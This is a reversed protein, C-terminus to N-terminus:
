QEQCQTCKATQSHANDNASDATRTTFVSQPASHTTYTGATNAVTTSATITTTALTNMWTNQTTIPPPFNGNAIAKGLNIAERIDQQPTRESERQNQATAIWNQEASTTLAAAGADEGQVLTISMDLHQLLADDEDLPTSSHRRQTRQERETAIRRTTLENHTREDFPLTQVLATLKNNRRNFATAEDEAEKTRIFDNATYDGRLRRYLRDAKAFQTGGKILELNELAEDLAEGSQNMIWGQVQAGLTQEFIDDDIIAM